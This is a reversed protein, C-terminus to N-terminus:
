NAEARSIAGRARRVEAGICGIDECSIRKHDCESTADARDALAKLAALLDNRQAEAKEARIRLPHKDPLEIVDQQPDM